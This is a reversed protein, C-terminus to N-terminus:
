VCDFMNMKQNEQMEGQTVPVVGSPAGLPFVVLLCTVTLKTPMCCFECVSGTLILILNTTLVHYVTSGVVKKLCFEGVVFSLDGFFLFRVSELIYLCFCIASWWSWGGRLNVFTNWVATWRGRKAKRINVEKAEILDFGEASSLLYTRVM